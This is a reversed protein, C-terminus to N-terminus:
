KVFLLSLFFVLLMALPGLAGIVWVTRLRKLVFVKSTLFALVFAIGAYVDVFLTAFVESASCTDPVLRSFILAWAVDCAAYILLHLFFESAGRRQRERKQSSAQDATGAMCVNDALLQM